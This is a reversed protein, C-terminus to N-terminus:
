VKMTLIEIKDAEINLLSMTAQQIKYNVILNEAGEAVILVGTIKPYEEKLTVTKGNVIIPTEETEKGSSTEKVVTKSALVTEMGSSISIVVSVKGVGEVKELSSSLKNELNNVYLSVSDLENENTKNKLFFESVFVLIVAVSLFLVLIIQLKKNNKINDIINIKKTENKNM